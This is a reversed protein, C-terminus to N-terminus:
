YWDEEEGDDQHWALAALEKARKFGKAAIGYSGEEWMGYTEGKEKLDKYVEPWLGWRPDANLVETASGVFADASFLEDFLDDKEDDSASAFRELDELTVEAKGSFAHGRSEGMEYWALRTPKHYKAEQLQELKM